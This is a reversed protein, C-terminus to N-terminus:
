VCQCIDSDPSLVRRNQTCLLSHTEKSKQFRQFKNDDNKWLKSALSSMLGKLYAAVAAVIGLPSCPSRGGNVFYVFLYSDYHHRQIYYFRPLRRVLRFLMKRYFHIAPENYDIVHLYVARCSPISSAYKLVEQVLSTAIGLNRYAEVVGLTLIYVLTTEMRSSDYRLLDSIESEKAPVLRTTVFGVLKDSQGDCRNIDVAAWSVIGHHNVVSLFFELEYRIPFLAAHIQELVELDAPQIPRSSERTSQAAAPRFRISSRACGGRGEEHVSFLFQSVQEVRSNIRFCPESARLLLNEVQALDSKDIEIFGLSST